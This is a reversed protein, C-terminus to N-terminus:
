TTKKFNLKICKLKLYVFRQSTIFFKATFGGVANHQQNADYQQLKSKQAKLYFLM